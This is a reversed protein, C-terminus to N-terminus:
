QTFNPDSRYPGLYGPACISVKEPPLIIQNEKESQMDIKKNITLEKPAIAKAITHNVEVPSLPVLLTIADLPVNVALSNALSQINPSFYTLPFALPHGPSHLM